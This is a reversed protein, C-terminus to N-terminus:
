HDVQFRVRFNESLIPKEAGKKKKVVPNVHNCTECIEVFANVQAEPIDYYREHVKVCTQNQKMRSVFGHCESIADFVDLQPLCVLWSADSWGKRQHLKM